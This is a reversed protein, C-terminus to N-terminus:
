FGSQALLGKADVLNPEESVPTFGQVTTNAVLANYTTAIGKYEKIIEQKKENLLHKLFPNQNEFNEIDQLAKQCQSKTKLNDINLSKLDNISKPEEKTETKPANYISGEPTMWSPKQASATGVGKKALALQALEAKSLNNVGNVM